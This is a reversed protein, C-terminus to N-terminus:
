AGDKLQNFTKFNVRKAKVRKSKFSWTIYFNQLWKEREIGGSRDHRLHKQRARKLQKNLQRGSRLGEECTFFTKGTAKKFYESEVKMVLM